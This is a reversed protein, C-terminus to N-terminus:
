RPMNTVPAQRIQWDHVTNYRDTDQNITKTSLGFVSGYTLYTYRPQYLGLAPTDRQWAQLFSRYKVARLGPDNRTRGAELGEDAVKSNYEAFNLRNTRPDIQSSHWYVFVDPDVGISTGYLLADYDHTAVVRQLEAGGAHRVEVQVGLRKWDEQLKQTVTKIEPTDSAWLTFRLSKGAKARIGDSGVKWGAAELSAGAAAPDYAPQTLTKDYGLQGLLLPSRVPRTPYDLSALISETNAGQVLAKRVQAEAFVPSGQRFFVMNAASLMFNNTVVNDDAAIREPVSEFYAATLEHREFSRKLRDADHFAHIVFSSLKPKGAHYREFPRLAIQEERTEPTEGAIELKQWAFPGAGVPQLTNFPHARLEHPQVDKLIHEPILGNTMHYPFSSLVNPLTFTVTQDDVAAIKI